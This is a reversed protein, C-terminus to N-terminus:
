RFLTSIPRTARCVYRLEVFNLVAGINGVPQAVDHFEVVVLIM